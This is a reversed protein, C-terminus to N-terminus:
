YMSLNFVPGPEPGSLVLGPHRKLIIWGSVPSLSPARALFRLLTHLSIYLAGGLPSRYTHGRTQCHAFWVLCDSLPSAQMDSLRVSTSCSLRSLRESYTWLSCIPTNSPLWTKISPVRLPPSLFFTCGPLGPQCTHSYFLQDLGQIRNIIPNFPVVSPVNLTEYSHFAVM